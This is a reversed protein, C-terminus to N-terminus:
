IYIYICTYTYVYINLSHISYNSYSLRLFRICIRIRQALEYTCLQSNVTEGRKANAVWGCIALRLKDLKREWQTEAIAAGLFLESQASLPFFPNSKLIQMKRNNHPTECVREKKQKPKKQQQKKHTKSKAYEIPM